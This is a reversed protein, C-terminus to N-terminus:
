QGEKGAGSNALYALLFTLLEKLGFVSVTAGFTPSVRVAAPSHRWVFGPFQDKIVPQELVGSWGKGM